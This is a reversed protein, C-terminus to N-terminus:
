KAGGSLKANLLTELQDLRAKLQANEARTEELKQNLGQIAALAVGDADVTAIHKDDSGVRFAAYFDQAMPGLHPTDPDQKFDWRSIPLAAVQELVARPDVPQLHEKASRDSTTNFTVARFNGSCTLQNNGDNILRVNYDQPGSVGFHFDIYPTAINAFSNGLEIAGGQDSTLSNNVSSSWSVIPGGIFVQGGLPNIQLATPLGNDRAQIVGYASTGNYTAYGLALSFNLDANPGIVLHNADTLNQTSSAALRLGGLARVCFQNAATSAFDANQSDAWVFSGAHNAKARLGAALSYNGAAASGYGGSVTASYGSAANGNGGGATAYDGSAANNFGGGVTARYGNATNVQGGGVIAGLGNASNVQGGAVTAYDGGATNGGGGGVTAEYGSATNYYGGGVAAYQGSNTNNQGGAIVSFSANSRIVNNFGGGITSYAAAGKIVNLEGGAITSRDAGAQISNQLGGGIFSLDATASNAYGGGVAARQGGAFNSDGGAVTAAYNGATNFVGGGVTAFAADTTDGDNSGVKNGFGGGVTGDDDFVAQFDGSGYGTVGGSPANGGAIVAGSVGSAIVSPRYGALGGVVNPLTTGPMFELAITNNVKFTLPQTDSTGVFNVGPVTGANGTLNWYCPLACYGYGNLTAANVGTLGSGDGSFSNGTNSLAVAGSYTGSLQASPLTGSLQSAPLTGTLNGATIAYPAATLAERPSLATYASASGNSRVAIELWREAGTFIGSGFDLVVTFLGNSVAVPALNNTAGVPNGGSLGDRLYFRIDYNGNAPSGIDLLRGQYTFGTGQAASLQIGLLWAALSLLSKTNM